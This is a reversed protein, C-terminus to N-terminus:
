AAERQTDTAQVDEYAMTVTVEQGAYVECARDLELMVRRGNDSVLVVRAAAARLLYVREGREADAHAQKIAAEVQDATAENDAAWDLWAFPDVAPDSGALEAIRAHTEWHLRENRRAAPFTESAVRRRHMTRWGRGVAEGAWMEFARLGGDALGAGIGALLVDGQAWKADSEAETASLLANEVDDLTIIDHVLETNHRM